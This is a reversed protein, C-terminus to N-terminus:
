TEWIESRGAADLSAAVEGRGLRRQLELRQEAALPLSHLDIAAGEGTDALRALRAAIERLVSEVLPHGPREGDIDAM